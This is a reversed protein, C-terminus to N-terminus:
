PDAQRISGSSPKKTPQPTVRAPEFGAKPVMKKANILSGQRPAVKRPFVSDFHVRMDFEGWFLEVIAAIRDRMFLDFSKAKSADM